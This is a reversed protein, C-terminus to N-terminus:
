QNPNYPLLLTPKVPEPMRPIWKRPPKSLDVPRKPINLYIGSNLRKLVESAQWNMVVAAPFRRQFMSDMIVSRRQQAAQALQALTRIRRGKKM